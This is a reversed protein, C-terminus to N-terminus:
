TSTGSVQAADHMWALASDLTEAYTTNLRDLSCTHAADDGREATEATKDFQDLLDRLDTVLQDHRQKIDQRPPQLESLGGLVFMYKPRFEQRYDQPSMSGARQVELLAHRILKTTKEIYTNEAEQQAARVEQAQHEQERSLLKMMGMVAVAAGAAAAPAATKAKAVVQHEDLKGLTNQAMRHARERVTSPEGAVGADAGLAAALKDMGVSFNPYLDIYQLGSVVFDFGDPMSRMPRLRVPIIKKGYSAALELEMRVYKPNRTVNPSLLLVFADASRIFGALSIRFNAAGPISEKDVFVTLGRSELEKCIAEARKDSRSYSVFVSSHPVVPAESNSAKTSRRLPVRMRVMEVRSTMTQRLRESPTSVTVDASGTADHHDRARLAELLNEAHEGDDILAVWGGDHPIAAAPPVLRSPEGLAAGVIPLSRAQAATVDDWVRVLADPAPTEPLLVITVQCQGLDERGSVTHGGTTLAERVTATASEDAASTLFLKM